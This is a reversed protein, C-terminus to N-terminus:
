SGSPSGVTARRRPGTPDPRPTAARVLELASTTDLPRGVYYGQALVCGLQRLEALQDATEVGEAIAALGMNQALQLIANAIGGHAVDGTLDGVFTRDIKLIDIPLRRLHALSSYGTGFDDLAM